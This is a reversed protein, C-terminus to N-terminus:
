GPEVPENDWRWFVWRFFCYISNALILLPLEEFISAFLYGPDTGGGIIRWASLASFAAVLSYIGNSVVLEAAATCRLICIVSLLVSGISGAFLLQEDGSWGLFTARAGEPSQLTFIGGVAVWGHFLLSCLGYWHPWKSPDGPVENSM